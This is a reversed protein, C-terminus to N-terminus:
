KAGVSVHLGPRANASDPQPFVGHGGQAKGASTNLSLNIAIVFIKNRNTRRAIWCLGAAQMSDILEVADRIAIRFHGAQLSGRSDFDKHLVDVWRPQGFTQAVLGM